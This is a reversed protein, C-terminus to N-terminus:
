RRHRTHGFERGGSSRQSRFVPTGRGPQHNQLVLGKGGRLSEPRVFRSGKRPQFVSDKRESLRRSHFFRTDRDHGRLILRQNRRLENTVFRNPHKRHQLIFELVRHKFKHSDRERPLVHVYTRREYPYPYPSYYSRPVVVSGYDEPAAYQEYYRQLNDYQLRPVDAVEPTPSVVPPSIVYVIIPPMPETETPESVADAQLGLLWNVNPAAIVKVVEKFNDYIALQDASLPGTPQTAWIIQVILAMMM